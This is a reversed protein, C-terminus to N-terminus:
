YRVKYANCAALAAPRVKCLLAPCAGQAESTVNVYPVAGSNSSDGRFLEGGATTLSASIGASRGHKLLCRKTIHRSQMAAPEQVCCCQRRTRTRSTGKGLPRLALLVHLWASGVFGAVRM